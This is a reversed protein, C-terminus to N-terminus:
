TTGFYRDGFDGLGPLIFKQENLERDVACTYIKVEPHHQNLLFIGEPAAIICALRIDKGEKEKLSKITALASGGTALMPDLIIVVANKDLPPFNAYYRQAIATKEDRKLGDFGVKAQPFIELMEKQMALGARLIPILIINESSLLYTKTTELPTTTEQECLSLDETLKFGLFRTIIGTHERFTKTDTTKDRLHTLSHEIIPHHLLTVLSKAREQLTLSEVTREPM